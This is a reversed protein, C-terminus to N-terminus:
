LTHRASISCVLYMFLTHEFGTLRLAGLEDKLIRFNIRFRRVKRIHRVVTKHKPIPFIGIETHYIKSM